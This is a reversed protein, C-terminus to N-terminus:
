MVALPMTVDHASVCTEPAVFGALTVLLSTGKLVIRQVYPM